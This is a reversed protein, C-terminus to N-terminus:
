IKQITINLKNIVMLKYMSLILLMTFVGTLGAFIDYFSFLRTPFWLQSFEDVLLIIIAAVGATSMTNIYKFNFVRCIVRFLFLTIITGTIFHLRKDTGVFTQAFSSYDTLGVNKTLDLFALYLISAILLADLIAKLLKM